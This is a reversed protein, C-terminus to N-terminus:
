NYLGVQKYNYDMVPPTLGQQMKYLAYSDYQIQVNGRIDVSTQCSAASFGCEPISMMAGRLQPTGQAEYIMNDSNNIVLGDFEFNAGMDLTAGDQVILIGAGSSGGRLETDDRIVTIEPSDTTGWQVGNFKHQETGVTGYEGIMRHRNDIWGSMLDLVEQPDMREDEQVSPTGGLGKYNDERKSSIGDMIGQHSNSGKAMIGPMSPKNAVNDHGNIEFSNGKTSFNVDNNGYFGIAGMPTPFGTRYLGNVTASENRMSGTSVLKVQNYRLNSNKTYYIEVEVSVEGITFHMPSTVADFDYDNEGLEQMTLELGSIAANESQTYAYTRVNSRTTEGRDRQVNAIILGYITVILVIHILLGRGL